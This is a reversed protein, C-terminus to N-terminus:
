WRHTREPLRGEDVGPAPELDEVRGRVMGISLARALDSRTVLGVVDGRDDTVLLRGYGDRQLSLLAGIADESAHITTPSRRMVDRVLRADREVPPVSRVDELTVFGVVGTSDTVPFGTHRHVFMRELLERVTADPDVTVLAERPTMVDAVRVGGVAAELATQRAEGAAAIYVFLAIAIMFVNITFLGFLGLVFAFLQGVRAAQATAVEYPRNRALLARLVRGGDLPFGPLMNFAALVVNMVALYALVFRLPELADPTALLLGYSGVGIAVSVAPGAVAIALEQHWEEPTDTLQAVGGLLWLTISEIPVGYRLAVVSHGLEHLLVSAFLGLAALSGLVWIWGTGELAAVDLDTGLVVELVVALEVVQGAILWAFIPLILLFTVDLKIPIGLVSGIRYSRFM